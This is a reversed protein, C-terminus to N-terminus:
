APAPRCRTPPRIPFWAPDYFATNPDENPIPTTRKSSYEYDARIFADHDFFKFDYQAGLTVTWPAVDLSDGPSTSCM